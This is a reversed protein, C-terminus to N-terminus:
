QCVKRMLYVLWISKRQELMKQYFRFRKQLYSLNNEAYKEEWELVKKIQEQTVYSTELEQLREERSMNKLPNDKSNSCLMNLAWMIESSDKKNKSKDKDFLPRYTVRDGPHCDWYNLNVSAM